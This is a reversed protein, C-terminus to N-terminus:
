EQVKINAERVIRGTADYQTKLFAAVPAGCVGVTTVLFPAFRPQLEPAKVAEAFYEGLKDLVPRPTKAPALVMMFNALDLEIGAEALTPVDPLANLRRAGTTALVRLDGAQVHSNLEPYAAAISNVHQGLIANVASAGGPFPVYIMDLKADRRFKEVVMHQATTPGNSGISVEGPKARAASMLDGLTKWPSKGHVAITQPVEAIHCLPEFSTLPDFNLKRLHPNIVFSNAAVLLTAGDPASRAVYESGIITSAGAKYEIIVTLNHLRGIREAIIRFLADMTGGPPNPIIIRITSPVQALAASALAMSFLLAWTARKM